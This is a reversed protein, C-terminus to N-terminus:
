KKQPFGGHPPDNPPFPDEVHLTITQWNNDERSEAVQHQSDARAEVGYMSDFHSTWLPGLGRFAIEAAALGHARANKLFGTSNLEINFAGAPQTGQNKVVIDFYV